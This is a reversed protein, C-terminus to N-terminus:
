TAKMRKKINCYRLSSSMVCLKENFIAWHEGM